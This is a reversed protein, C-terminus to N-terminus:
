RGSERRGALPTPAPPVARVRLPPIGHTSARPRGAAVRGGHGLAPNEDQLRTMLREGLPEPFEHHVACVQRDQQLFQRGREGGVQRRQGTKDGDDVLGAARVDRHAASELDDDISGLSRRGHGSAVDDRPGLITEPRM